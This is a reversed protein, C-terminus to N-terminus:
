LAEYYSDRSGGADQQVAPRFRFWQRVGAIRQRGARKLLARRRELARPLLRLVQRFAPLSSREKLLVAAVVLINRVVIGPLFAQPCGYLSYNNLQLLFRNRVGHMNLDDALESRREPVVVRRHYGIAEPVYRCRWGLLQGRWALDADERYAFFAEDFLFARRGRGEALQPWIAAVSGAFAEPELLLDEIFERRLLLCAGSGGFVRCPRSYAAEDPRGSGRDFHRLSPTIFMGAADLVLPASPELNEDGRFLKPTATGASPDAELAATLDKLAGPCLRLDPNCVLLYDSSSQLFEFVGQNHAGAFGLNHSNRRIELSGPFQQELFDAAGDSSGNDRVQLRLNEGASFGEQQLLSEVCAQLCRRGHQRLSNFLVLHVFVSVRERM